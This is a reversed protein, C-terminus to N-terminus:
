RVMVSIEPMDRFVDCLWTLNHLFLLLLNARLSINGGDVNETQKCYSWKSKGNTILKAAQELISQLNEIGREEPPKDPSFTDMISEMLRVRIDDEEISNWISEAPEWTYVEELFRSEKALGNEDKDFISRDWRNPRWFTIVMTKEDQM